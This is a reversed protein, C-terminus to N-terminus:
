YGDSRNKGQHRCIQSYEQNLIQEMAIDTEQDVKLEFIYLMGALQCRIDIRGKNTAVEAQTHIESLELFTVFLVQYPGEQDYQYTHYPLRSCHTKMIDIFTALDNLSARLKDAMCSVGLADLQGLVALM